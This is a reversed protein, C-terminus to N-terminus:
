RRPTGAGRARRMVLVTVDDDHLGDATAADIIQGVIREASDTASIRSRSLLADIGEDIDEGRREVLGDTIAVLASGAPVDLSSSVRQDRGAGFPITPTVDLRKGGGTAHILLPPLHGASAVEVRSGDAEALLYLATVLQDLGQLEFLDDMRSLVHVPDPDVAIYARFTSRMQAMAAAAQVGRGMVDGVVAVVRGDHLPIVDFWDGGVQEDGAPSYHASIDWGPVVDVSRPLLARQLRIAARREALYLESRELTQATLAAVAQMFAREDPDFLRPSSFSFRLAGLRRDPVDLPLACMSVTDPEFGRLEPFREDRERQSEIWVPEGTRLAVAAPLQADAREARLQDVLSEGYGVAGPVALHEGDEAPVLLSGGSARLADVAESIVVAAVDEPTRSRALAATLRQLRASRESVRNVTSLRRVEDLLCEEFPRPQTIQQGRAARRLQEIVAHVYWRRFLRHEPPTELTLLRAARSYSDAEDLAALYAEGANAMSLPLYLTLSTRPYGHKAAALAQRKIAARADGFGHVVTDILTALHGPIDVGTAASGAAALSFERVLNDIHAKAEVLLSTPVDGLVVTYRQEATPDDDDWAALLADIGSDANDDHQTTTSLEAWVVKGGGDESAEFGWASTLEEVLALGRGTMNQTSALTRVPPRSSGDRVEIRAWGPGARVTLVIPPEAHQRANALLESTILAADDALMGAGREVLIAHAFRRGHRVNDPADDIDLTAVDANPGTPEGAAPSM